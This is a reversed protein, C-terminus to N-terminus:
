HGAIKLQKLQEAALQSSATGPYHSIVKKFATKADSWNSQSALILGVKLQADATRPSKPYNNVVINFEALAQSNNGTVGYLEGLWYHANSTFQGAPYKKLMTQLTSIADSYKRVKIFTYATQYLQQEEMSATSQSLPASVPTAIANNAPLASAMQQAAKKNSAVVKETPNTQPIKNTGKGKLPQRLATTQGLQVNMIRHNVDDYFAKQQSEMLQLKHSMEELQGTLTQIQSQLADIKAANEGNQLNDLRLEIQRLRQKETMTSNDSITSPYNDASDSNSNSDSPTSDSPAPSSGPWTDKAHTAKNFHNNTTSGPAPQFGTPASTSSNQADVPSEFQQSQNAQSQQSQQDQDGGNLDVTNQDGTEPGAGIDTDESQQPMSNISNADYVPAAAYLPMAIGTLMAMILYALIRTSTMTRM